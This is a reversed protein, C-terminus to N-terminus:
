KIVKKSIRHIITEEGDTFKNVSHDKIRASFKIKNGETLFKKMWENDGDNSNFTKIVNNDELMTIVYFGRSQIFRVSDIVVDFNKRNGKIGVFKSRDAIEQDHEKQEERKEQINLTHPLSALYGFQKPHVNEQNMLKFLNEEYNNKFGGIASFILGQFHQKISEARKVDDENITFGDKVYKQMLEKNSYVHDKEDQSWHQAESTKKYGHLRYVMCALQVMEATNYTYDKALKNQMKSETQTNM